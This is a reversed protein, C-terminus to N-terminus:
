GALGARRLYSRLVRRKRLLRRDVVAVYRVRGRKVGFLVRGRRARGTLVGRGLSRAGRARLRKALSGRGIGRVRHGRGTTAVLRARRRRDFVALARARRSRKVCYRLTRKSERVPLGARRLIRARSHGIRLRGIGRRRVRVRRALCSKRLTAARPEARLPKGGPGGAYTLWPVTPVRDVGPRTYDCVGTPFASQLKAFQEDNLDAPYDARNLPKLECKVTDDTLPMGAVIRASSYAQVTADCVSAPQDSGGPLGDTCRDTLSAPKNQIIKQALPVDRRDKEVAALWEDMAIISEDEFDPDGIIPVQGRWLVQNAHTGHERDLRARMVYTRYVDHFVGPDPGRFDIIAVKDLQDAQNVAGSRYVRELAPRDAATRVLQPEADIDGSGIKANVDAFQAPTIAGSALAARGYEVGVNDFPRGAFGDQPRRGFINVMYDQLTCRVGKPNSSADYVQEDPVGPCSRSPEGSFPIVTTFTVANAPNPHGEVAQIDDASWTVGPDWRDPHEFYERLLFYDVYLMASSWADPFSCAPTIGQYFGPYANAVQHQTLSGGSCGSGITYRLEGYREIVHEKTMIMSEAQTAINCNHGANNLAHSMTVFGRGLAEENLVDPADAQEYATDCSAGHFVVMKNNFGPQPAWPAWPKSPDYLVAVRYEDRDIAGVEQRVLFPVTKGQDTTTTAVDDPPSEPDYERLGGGGTPKYLYSYQPKRNCQKDLAGDFCTWPQIQPGSTVPGGFPHNRVEIQTGRGGPLRARVLNTGERLNEVLGVFRGDPRLAFASSVDRGDVDVRVQGAAVGEPLVLEVLADGGSILDARNSLVEIRPVAAAAPGAVAGAVIAAAVLAITGRRM